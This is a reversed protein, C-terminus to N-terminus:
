DCKELADVPVMFLTQRGMADVLVPVVLGGAYTDEVVGQFGGFIGDDFRVADGAEYQLQGTSFDLVKNDILSVLAQMSRDSMVVPVGDVRRGLISLVGDFSVLGHWAQASPTTRVFLYGNFAPVDVDRVQARGGTGSRRHSTRREKRKPLWCHVNYGTLADAVRQEMGAVVQAVYWCQHDSSIALARRNSEMMQSRDVTRWDPAIGAGINMQVMM